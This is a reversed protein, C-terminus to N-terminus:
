GHQSRLMASEAAALAVPDGVHMWTGEFAIGFLRGQGIARDWLRNLSFPGQPAGELLRPQAISVGTFVYPVDEDKRRRRVRGDPLLAFDGGGSYGISGKSPALLLLSDMAEGDWAGILRDLNASAELWVSDSNHVLFPGAGLVPLAKVIGGGTDLLADREDSIVIRPAHRAALHAILVEPRYHVNVVATKIGAQAIRDLVHDILPRGALRVMPKPITETLPRMRLGLGAGLV